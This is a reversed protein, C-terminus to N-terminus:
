IETFEISIDVLDFEINRKTIQYDFSTMFVNYVMNESSNANYSPVYTDASNYPSTSTETPIFSTLNPITTATNVSAATLRVYIPNFVNAEYFSKMWAGAYGKKNALDYDTSKSSKSWVSSWSSTIKHKRAIVYRRLTGDAMRYTKEIVEYNIKIPQRNDDTLHYWVMLAPDTTSTGDSKLGASIQIGANIMHGTRTTM